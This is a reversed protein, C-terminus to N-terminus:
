SGALTELAPMLCAWDTVLAADIRDARPLRALIAGGGHRAIAEANDGFRDGTLIVGAVPLGRGRLLELTLLTHNIAGLRDAAVVIVPLGLAGMLDTMTQRPNLPVLAGGAGEVVIPRPSAPLALEALPIEVGSREAALHPSLPPGLSFAPAHLRGVPVRALRAVADTDTEEVDIGTQVPKWYDAEWARVLCASVVTKGVGTDTGTVFVGKM